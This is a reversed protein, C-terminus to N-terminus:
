YDRRSALTAAATLAVAIADYEDDYTIKKEIRILKDVMYTVQKKDARGDGAIAVKIENPTFEQITLGHSRAIYLCAGRVEAVHMATKQNSTFYVKEIACMTPKFTQICDRLANGVSVLREEFPSGRVTTECVSYVLTERVGQIHEVVAIGCRDYGPDVGLLLVSPTHTNM